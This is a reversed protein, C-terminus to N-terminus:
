HPLLARERSQEHFSSVSLVFERGRVVFSAKYKPHTLDTALLRKQSNIKVAEFAIGDVIACADLLIPSIDPM